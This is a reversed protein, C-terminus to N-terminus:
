SYDLMRINVRLFKSTPLLHLFETQSKCMKGSLPCIIRISAGEKSAHILHDWIGLKDARVMTKDQPLLLDVEKKVSKAFEVILQGARNGDTIVEVFEPEIGQEIERIKQEAPLAKIWLTEFLYQQQEFDRKVNSYIVEPIAHVEQM